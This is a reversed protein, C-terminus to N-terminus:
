PELIIGTVVRDSSMMSYYVVDNLFFHLLNSELGPSLDSKKRRKKKREKMEESIRSFELSKAPKAIKLM